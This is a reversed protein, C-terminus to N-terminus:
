RVVLVPLTTRALVRQTVSGLLLKELGKRGHSAMVIVDARAKKAAAITARAPSDDFAHSTKVPVGQASAIAAAKKLFKETERVAAKAYEAKSPWEYGVGDPYVPSRFEIMAHFITLNAGTARALASAAKVAHNSRTTGDIPVLINKYM